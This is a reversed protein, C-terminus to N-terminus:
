LPGETFDHKEPYTAWAMKGCHGKGPHLDGCVLSFSAGTAWPPARTERCCTQRGLLKPAMGVDDAQKIYDWCLIVLINVQHKLGHTLSVKALGWGEKLPRGGEEHEKAAQGRSYRDSEDTGQVQACLQHVGEGQVLRATTGGGGEGRCLIRAKGEKATRGMRSLMCVLFPMFHSSLLEM